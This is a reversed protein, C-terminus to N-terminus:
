QSYNNGTIMFDFATDSLAPTSANTYFYVMFYNTNKSTVYFTRNSAPTISVQYNTHGVNHYVAYTGTTQKTATLSGHKKAGWSNAFGGTSAVSASLLVGPMNTKGRLDFGEQESFYWHNESFFAMMGNVGFQFYRVGSKTFSWSMSSDGITLLKSYVESTSTITIKISYTGAPCGDLTLANTSFYVTDETYGIPMVADFSGLVAYFNGNHLLSITAYSQAIGEDNNSAHYVSVASAPIIIKSNDRSVNMTNTLILSTQTQRAVNTVSGGADANYMLDALPTLNQVSFVLRPKGTAPDVMVIRGTQEVIFDGVKAAGNHLLTIKALGAYEGASPTTGASMKSLFEILALAQAYSGGAWFAPNNKLAGQIGSVGATEQTSNLERLLMMVTQILGGETTTGFKDTIAMVKHWDPDLIPTTETASNDTYTTIVKTWLFFSASYDPKTTSWSGGTQTTASSSKYYWIVVSSVGKGDDGPTGDEAYRSVSYAVTSSSKKYTTTTRTWLYWGLTPSPLTTSWGTTPPTTGSSSKAYEITTGTIGDGDEGPEGDRVVYGITSIYNSPNDTYAIDERVWLFYGAPKTGLAAISYQWGSTPSVTDSASYAYANKIDYISRADKGQIVRKETQTPTRGDTYTIVEYNWLYYNAPKAPLTTQWGTGPPNIGDTSIAYWDVVSLIGAGPQGPEGPDGPAGMKGKTVRQERVESFSENGLTKGTITFQTIGKDTILNSINGVVCKLIGATPSSIQGVILDIGLSTVKFTGPSTGVGDYTLETAGEFVRIDTGTNDYSSVVGENSAPVSDIENSLTVNIADKGNNGRFVVPITMTDLLITKAASDYLRITYLSKDDSDSPEILVPSPTAETAEVSNDATVTIFGGDQIQTGRHLQGKVTIPMHHGDTVADKSDKYIVPSTANLSWFTAQEIAYDITIKSIYVETESFEGLAINFASLAADKELMEAPDILDDSDNIINLIVTKLGNQKAPDISEDWDWADLLANYKEILLNRDAETLFPNLLMENFRSTTSDVLTQVSDLDHSLSIKETESLYRDAFEEDTFDRIASIKQTYDEGLANQIEKEALNYNYLAGNLALLADDKATIEEPTVINDGAIILNLVNFLNTKASMVASYKATLDTIVAEPVFPNIILKEYSGKLSQFITEVAEMDRKLSIRESASLVRDAFEENTFDAIEQINDHLDDVISDIDFPSAGADTPINGKILQPKFVFVPQESDYYRHILDLKVKKETITFVEYVKSWQGMEVDVDFVEWENAENALAFTFTDGFESKIYAWFVYTGPKLVVDQIYNYGSQFFRKM